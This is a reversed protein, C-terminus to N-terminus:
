ARQNHCAEHHKAVMVHGLCIADALDNEKVPDFDLGYNEKVFRCALHKPTVVEKKKGQDRMLKNFEKDDDNLYLQLDKRWGTAGGCDKYTIIPLKDQIRDLLVFHLGDLTKGGIRSRHQNIEEIVIQEINPYTDLLTVIQECISQIRKLSGQPYTLTSLGKTKPKLLGYTLLASSELDLIAYGTSKTSLDLSLLQSSM